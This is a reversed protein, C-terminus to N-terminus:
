WYDSPQVSAKGPSLFLGYIENPGFPCPGKVKTVKALENFHLLAYYLFLIIYHTTINDSPLCHVTMYSHKKHDTKM